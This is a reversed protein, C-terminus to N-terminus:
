KVSMWRLIINCDVEMDESNERERLVKVKTSMEWERSNEKLETCKM